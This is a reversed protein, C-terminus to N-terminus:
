KGAQYLNIRDQLARNCPSDGDQAYMIAQTHAIQERYAAEREDANDGHLFEQSSIPCKFGRILGRSITSSPVNM